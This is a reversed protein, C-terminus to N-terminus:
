WVRGWRHHACVNTCVILRPIYALDVLSAFTSHVLSCFLEEVAKSGGWFGKGAVFLLQPSPLGASILQYAVYSCSAVVELSVVTLCTLLINLIHPVSGLYNGGMGSKRSEKGFFLAFFLKQNLLLILHLFNSCEEQFYTKRVNNIELLLCYNHLNVISYLIRVFERMRALCILFFDLIGGIVCKSTYKRLFVWM